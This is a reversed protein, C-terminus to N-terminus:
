GSWRRLAELVLPTVVPEPWPSRPQIHRKRELERLIALYPSCEGGPPELTQHWDFWCAHADVAAKMQRLMGVPTHLLFNYLDMSVDSMPWKVSFSPWDLLNEFPVKFNDSLIVPICGAFFSEYLHNTWSSTGMPVLCFHSSGMREFYDDTFGGVSVGEIGSFVEIIKGRVVNNKYLDNLGPHRGHFNFLLTRQESPLNFERMRRYRFYDTHGPIVFDKWPNFCSPGCKPTLAETVAFVSHPIYDRWEPFFNMGQDSFIFVHDRGEHRSWHPLLEERRKLLDIYVASVERKPFTQNMKYVIRDCWTHWPVLFFDAEDPDKTICSGQRLWHPILVELGWQGHHCHLVGLTRDPLDYVFIRLNSGYCSHQPNLGLLFPLIKMEQLDPAWEDAAAAEMHPELKPLLSTQLYSLVRRAEEPGDDYDVARLSALMITLLAFGCDEAHEELMDNHTIAWLLKRIVRSHPLDIDIWKDVIIKTHEWTERKIVETGRCTMFAARSFAEQSGCGPLSGLWYVLLLPTM